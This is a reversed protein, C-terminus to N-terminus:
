SACQLKSRRKLASSLWHQCHQCMLLPWNLGKTSTYQWFEIVKLVHLLVEKTASLTVSWSPWCPLCSVPPAHPWPAPPTRWLNSSRQCSSQKCKTKVPGRLTRVSETLFLVWTKILQLHFLKYKFQFDITRWSIRLFLLFSKPLTFANSRWQLMTNSPTLSIHVSSGFVPFPLQEM